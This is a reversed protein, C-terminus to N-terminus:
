RVAKSKRVEEEKEVEVEEKVVDKKGEGGTHWAETTNPELEKQM